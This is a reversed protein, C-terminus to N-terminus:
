PFNDITEIKIKEHRSTRLHLYAEGILPNAWLNNKRILKLTLTRIWVIELLLDM